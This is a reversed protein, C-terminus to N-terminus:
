KIDVFTFPKAGAQFMEELAKITDGTNVNVGRIADTLLYVETGKIKLADLVTHKVCYDTALGGIFLRKIGSGHVIM